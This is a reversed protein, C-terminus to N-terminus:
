REPDMVKSSVKKVLHTKTGKQPQLYRIFPAVM